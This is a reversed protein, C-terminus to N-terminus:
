KPETLHSVVVWRDNSDAQYLIVALSAVNDTFMTAESRNVQEVTDVVYDQINNDSMHLQISDGPVLSRVVAESQRSWPITVVKRVETGKLWEAGEPKWVGAEIHSPQLNFFWGGTLRLGIPYPQGSEDVAAVVPTPIVPGPRNALYSFLPISVALGFMFVSLLIITVKTLTSQSRWFGGVKESVEELASPEVTEPAPPPEYDELVIPRLREPSAESSEDEGEPLPEERSGGEAEGAPAIPTFSEDESHWDESKEATEGAPPAEDGWYYDNGVFALPGTPTRAPPEPEVAEPPNVPEPAPPEEEDKEFWDELIEDSAPPKTDGEDTPAADEAGNEETWSFPATQGGPARPEELKGTKPRPLVDSEEEYLGATQLRNSLQSDDMELSSPKEEQRRLLGSLFSKWEKEDESTVPAPQPAQTEPPQPQEPQEEEIGEIRYMQWFAAGSTDDSQEQEAGTSEEDTSMDLFPFDSRVPQPPEEEEMGQFPDKGSGEPEPKATESETYLDFASEGPPEVATEDSALAPEEESGEDELLYERHSMLENMDLMPTPSIEAQYSPASPETEEPPAEGAPAAQDSTKPKGGFLGRIGGFLRAMGSSRKAEEPQELLDQRISAAYADKESLAEPTQEEEPELPLSNVPDNSM